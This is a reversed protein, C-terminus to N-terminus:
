FAALWASLPKFLTAEARTGAVMGIHGAALGLATAKPLAEALAAASGPPVIHDKEPIVVLAPRAIEGPVVARGAIRWRGRAPANEVYWGFLCERAVGAALPVGDNLWDELAVFHGAAEGDGALAAFHRFKTATRYPSLSAFMAQLADVPLEGLADIAAALGPMMTKLVRRQAAHAAHFDWPTALLTLARVREPERQALALALLGGMCYGVVVAPRQAADTVARLAQALRGAVYDTLTFGREAAAPTGWDILYPRFGAAALFRMLSRKASLDLIYARNILSPVVLVPLGSARRRRASGYDFLRTSGSRWVAAPQSPRKPRPFRRYRAVGDAFEEMRRAAERDVARAFADPDVVALDRALREGRAALDPSWALSGASL